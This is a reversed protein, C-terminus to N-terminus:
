LAKGGIFCLMKDALALANEIDRLNAMGSSSHIYRCPVSITVTRVGARSKHIAGSDNGGAVATKIQHKIGANQAAFFLERDYLTGNDMFSIVPGDGLVCIKKAGSVGSIDSATTAELCIAFQPDIGYAATTAGRLGVEEQVSFSAYFDYMPEGKILKVLIACGARDDLAKATIIGGNECFPASFVATDGLSILRQAEEKTDCGIDIYLNNVDPLKKREDKSLLHIPKQGIVGLTGNQFVVRKSLLCETNIGGVTSFNILGDDNIYTAIIGVEDMHADLMIKNQTRNKGKKFVIINGLPDVHWDCFGDIESIIKERIPSENGSAGSLACLERLLKLVM